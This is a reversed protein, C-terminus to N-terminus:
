SVWGRMRLHAIVDPGFAEALQIALLRMTSDSAPLDIISGNKMHLRFKAERGSQREGSYEFTEFDSASYARGAELLLPRPRTM